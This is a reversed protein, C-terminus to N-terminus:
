FFGAWPDSCQTYVAIYTPQWRRLALTVPPDGGERLSRLLPEVARSLQQALVSWCSFYDVMIHLFFPTKGCNLPGTARFKKVETKIMFLGWIPGQNM